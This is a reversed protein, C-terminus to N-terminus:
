SIKVVPDIPGQPHRRYIFTLIGGDAVGHHEGRRGQRARSAFDFGAFHTGHFGTGRDAAADNEPRRRRCKGPQGDCAARARFRASQLNGYRDIHCVVNLLFMVDDVPAKCSPM